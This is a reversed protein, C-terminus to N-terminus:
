MKEWETRYQLQFSPLKSKTEDLESRLEKLLKKCYGLEMPMEDCNHESFLLDHHNRHSKPTFDDM